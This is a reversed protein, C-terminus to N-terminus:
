YSYYSKLLRISITTNVLVVVGIKANRPPAIVQTKGVEM